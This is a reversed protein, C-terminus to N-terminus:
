FDKKLEIDIIAEKLFTPQFMGNTIESIAEDIPEICQYEYHVHEEYEKCLVEINHERLYYDLKGILEYSFDLSYQLVKQKRTILATSLAHSVSKSYARILGGGGLKIGGFYRVTVALIDQMHQKSLCELMPSGATGSPEGDDNSRQIENHEGLIFAYCHHNANPHEKKIKLIYAKADEESACRHLYCLFRSKKIEYAEMHDEKLRYM